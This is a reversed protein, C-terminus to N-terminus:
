IKKARAKRVSRVYLRQMLAYVAAVLQGTFLLVLLVLAIENSIWQLLFRLFAPLADAFYTFEFPFFLFFWAAAFTAFFLGGYSDLDRSPHKQGILILVATLLWYGLWGALMVMEFTSFKSTFFGTSSMQHTIFILGLLGGVVIIFISAGKDQIDIDDSLEEEVTKSFHDNLRELKSKKNSKELDLV